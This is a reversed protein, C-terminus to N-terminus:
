ESKGGVVACRHGGSIAGGFEVVDTMSASNSKLM